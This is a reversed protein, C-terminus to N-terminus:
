LLCYLLNFLLINLRIPSILFKCNRLAIKLFRLVLDLIQRNCKLLFLHFKYIQLALNLSQDMLDLNLIGLDNCNLYVAVSFTFVYFISLFFAIPILGHHLLGVQM